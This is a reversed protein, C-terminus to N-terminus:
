NASDPVPLNRLKRADNIGGTNTVNTFGANEFIQKARAARGGSRCYLNIPTSNDFMTHLAAPDLSALPLNLDGQIHDLAYENETRVDIWVTSSHNGTHVCATLLVMVLCTVTIKLYNNM